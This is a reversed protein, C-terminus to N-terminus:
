AEISDAVVVPARVTAAARAPWYALAFLALLPGSSVDTMRGGYVAGLAEGFVWIFAASVVATVVAVRRAPAPLVIAAALFALVISGFVELATGDHESVDSFGTVLANVWAPQGAGMGAIMRNISEGGLNIPQLNLIALSGWLVFWVIKAAFMGFPRAAIFVGERSNDTPWLLVAVVAYLIASGPAGDLASAGPILLGGLAEGFWWVVLAWVLSVALSPKLFRRSAIGLGILLQLVVFLANIWVPSLEVLRAAWLISASLWGPNGRATPALVETGFSKTFMFPQSQLVADIVWITALGLQLWRRPDTTFRRESAIEATGSVACPLDLAGLASDGVFPGESSPRGCGRLM